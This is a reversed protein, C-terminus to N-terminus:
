IFLWKFYYGIKYLYVSWYSCLVGLILGAIVDSFWHVGLVIRSAGISIGLLFALLVLVKFGSAGTLVIGLTLYFSMGVTSHGSPFSYGIYDFEKSKTPRKVRFIIKLLQSIGVSSFISVVISTIMVYEKEYALFFLIPLGIIFITEVNALMTAKEMIKKFDRYKQNNFIKKLKFDISLGEIKIVIIGFILVAAFVILSILVKIIYDNM